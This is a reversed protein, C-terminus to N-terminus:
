GQCQTSSMCSYMTASYAQAYAGNAALPVETFCKDRAPGEAMHVCIGYKEAYARGYATSGANTALYTCHDYCSSAAQVAATTLFMIAAAAFALSKIPKQAFIKM